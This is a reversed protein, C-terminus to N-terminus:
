VFGTEELSRVSRAFTGTFQQDGPPTPPWRQQEQEAPHGDLGLWVPM